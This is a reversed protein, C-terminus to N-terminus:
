QAFLPCLMPCSERSVTHWVTPLVKPSLFLMVPCYMYLRAICIAPMMAPLVILMINSKVTHMINPLESDMGAVQVLSKAPKCKYTWWTVRKSRQMAENCACPKISGVEYNNFSRDAQGGVSKNATAAAAAAAAARLM